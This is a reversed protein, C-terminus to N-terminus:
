GWCSAQRIESERLHTTLVTAHHGEASLELRRCDRRDGDRFYLVTADEHENYGGGDSRMCGHEILLSRLGSLVVTDPDRVELAVHTEQGGTRESAALRELPGLGRLPLAFIEVMCRRRDRSSVPARLIRVDLSGRPVGYRRSLRDRVVVSRTIENVTLGLTQLHDYLDSLSRPFVLVATHSFGSHAAVADAQDASLCPLLEAIVSGTDNSEIFDVAEAVCTHDTADIGTPGIANNASSSSLALSATEDSGRPSRQNIVRQM